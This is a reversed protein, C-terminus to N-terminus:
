PKIQSSGGGEVAVTANVTASTQATADFCKAPVEKITVKGEPAWWSPNGTIWVGKVESEEVVLECGAAVTIKAAEKPLKLIAEKKSVAEAMWPGKITVPATCSASEITPTLSMVAAAPSPTKGVAVLSECTLTTTAVEFTLNGSSMTVWKGIPEWKQAQAMAPMAAFAVVALVPLLLGYLKKSM